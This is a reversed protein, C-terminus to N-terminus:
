HLSLGEPQIREPHVRTATRRSTLVPIGGFLNAVSVVLRSKAFSLLGQGVYHRRQLFLKEVGGQLVGEGRAWIGAQITPPMPLRRGRPTRSSRPFNTKMIFPEVLSVSTTHTEHTEHSEHTLPFFKLKKMRKRLTFLPLLIGLVVIHTEHTEHREHTKKIFREYKIISMM